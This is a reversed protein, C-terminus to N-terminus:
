EGGIHASCTGPTPTGASPTVTSTSRPTSGSLRLGERADPRRVDPVHAQDLHCLDQSGTGRGNRALVDGADPTRASPTVSVPM